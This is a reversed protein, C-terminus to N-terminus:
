PAPDLRVFIEGPVHKYAAGTKRDVANAAEEGLEMGSEAADIIGDGNPAALLSVLGFLAGAIV